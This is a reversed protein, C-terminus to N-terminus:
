KTKKKLNRYMIEKKTGGVYVGILIELKRKL